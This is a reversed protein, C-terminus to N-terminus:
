TSPMKGMMNKEGINPPHKLFPVVMLTPMRNKFCGWIKKHKFFIFQCKYTKLVGGIKKTKKM